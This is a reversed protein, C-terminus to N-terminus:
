GGIYWNKGRQTVAEHKALKYFDWFLAKNIGTRTTRTHTAVASGYASQLPTFLTVNLPQLLHTSHGPCSM